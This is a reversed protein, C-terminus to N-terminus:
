KRRRMKEINDYQAARTLYNRSKLSYWGSGRSDVYQIYKRKIAATQVTIVGGVSGDPAYLRLFLPLV